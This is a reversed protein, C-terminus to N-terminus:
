PRIKEGGAGFTPLDVAGGIASNQSIDISWWAERRRRFAAEGRWVPRGHVVDVADEGAEIVVLRLRRVPAFRQSDRTAVAGAAAPGHFDHVQSGARPALIAWLSQVWAYASCGPVPAKSCLSRDRRGRGRRRGGVSRCCGRRMYHRSPFRRRGLLCGRCRSRHVHSFRRIGGCAAASPPRALLNIRRRGRPVYRVREVDIVVARIAHAAAICNLRRLLPM